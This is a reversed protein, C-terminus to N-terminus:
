GGVEVVYDYMTKLEETTMHCYAHDVPLAPTVPVATNSSALDQM